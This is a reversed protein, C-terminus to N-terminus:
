TVVISDCGFWETLELLRIQSATRWERGAMESANQVGPLYDRGFALLGPQPEPVESACGRARCRLRPNGAAGVGVELFVDFTWRGFLFGM